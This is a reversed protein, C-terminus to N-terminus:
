LHVVHRTADTPTFGRSLLKLCSTTPPPLVSTTDKAGMLRLSGRRQLLSRSDKIFSVLSDVKLVWERWPSSCRIFLVDAAGNSWFLSLAIKTAASYGLFRNIIFHCSSNYLSVLSLDIRLALHRGSPDSQVIFAVRRPVACMVRPRFSRLYPAPLYHVDLAGRPSLHFSHFLILFSQSPLTVEPLPPM